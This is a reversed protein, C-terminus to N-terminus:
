CVRTMTCLHSQTLSCVKDELARKVAHFSKWRSEFDLESTGQFFLVSEYIQFWVFVM